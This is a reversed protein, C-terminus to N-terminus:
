KRITKLMNMFDVFDQEKMSQSQEYLFLGLKDITSNFAKVKSAEEQEIHELAEETERNFSGTAFYRAQQPPDTAFYREPQSPGTADYRSITPIIGTAGFGMWENNQLTSVGRPGNLGNSSLTYDSLHGISNVRKCVFSDVGIFDIKIDNYQWGAWEDEQVRVWEIEETVLDELQYSIFENSHRESNYIWYIIIGQEGQIDGHNLRVILKLVNKAKVKHCIASLWSKFGQTQILEHHGHPAVFYAPQVITKYFIM